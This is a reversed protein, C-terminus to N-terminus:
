HSSLHEIASFLGEAEQPSVQNPMAVKMVGDPSRLAVLLVQGNYYCPCQLEDESIEKIMIVGTLDDHHHIDPCVDCNIIARM